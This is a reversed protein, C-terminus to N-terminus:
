GFCFLVKDNKIFNKSIKFAEPIGNPRDQIGYQINIGLENGDNFLDKFEGIDRKSSIIMIDRIKALLLISLSYYIMPKNYIPLLHKNKNITPTYDQEM